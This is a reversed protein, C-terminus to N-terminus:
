RVNGDVYAVDTVDTCRRHKERLHGSARFFLAISPQFCYETTNSRRFSRKIM